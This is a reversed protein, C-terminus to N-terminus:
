TDLVHLLISHMVVRRKGNNSCTSLTLIPNNYDININFNYISRNKLNDIFENYNNDFETQIYYEETDINYISFVQYELTKSPTYLTIIHNDKNLYWASKLTNRLSGFMSGDNTNHGYIIINKDSGDLKNRYDMFIWGSINYEKNFNHKLYYENDNTRLVPYEIKTNNVKIYGVTDKNQQKLKDFDIKYIEKNTEEDIVIKIDKNITNLINDNKKNDRYWVFIKVGSFIILVVFILEIFIFITSKKLRIKKM